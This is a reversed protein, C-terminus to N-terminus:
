ALELVEVAEGSSLTLNKENISARKLYALGIYKLEKGHEEGEKEHESYEGSDSNNSPVQIASTITGVVEGSLLLNDNKPPLGNGGNAKSLKGEVRGRIRVLKRPTNGGRSDIRAVLEQGVYCGKDFSVHTNIFNQGAEAPLLGEYLEAGMKPVGSKIREYELIDYKLSNRGREFGEDDLSHGVNDTVNKLEMECNAGISFRKLRELVLEGFSSAVVLIYQADEKECRVKLAAVLKGEPTLLLSPIEKGVSLDKIDASLQGQLFDKAGAGTINIFNM